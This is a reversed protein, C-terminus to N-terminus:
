GGGFRLGVDVFTRRARDEAGAYWRLANVVPGSLDGDVHYFPAADLLDRRYILDARVAGGNDYTLWCADVTPAVGGYPYGGYTPATDTVHMTWARLALVPAIQWTAAFGTSTVMGAGAGGVSQSADEFSLRLRANDSYTLTGGSLEMRQLDVPVPAGNSYLYQEVFTPLTFSGSEQLDVSWKGQPFLDAQLSPAILATKAPQSLGYIGGAYDFWFAGVGAVVKLDNATAVLGADARTQDLTAGLTPLSYWAAQQDYFGSSTRVAVDAFGAIPGTSHVGATLGSDSWGDVISGYDELEYNGRDAVASITLNLARPDDFTASGFSYSGAFAEDPSDWSRGQESGAAVAVSQDAGLQLTGNLDVRQRSEQDNSFTGFVLSSDDSGVQARVIADSGLTAVEWNSQSAIPDLEVTGGGAQNGYLFADAAGRVVASTEYDAPIFLYPSLGSTVDYVPAGNDILLSGAASLGRDSLEPGPTTSSEELLTFPRLGISSEVHAYPLNALDDPSPANEVLADYRRVIAVVPEGQTVVVRSTQCYRCAIVVAVIGADHLAFTGNADTATQAPSSGATIGTVTAGFIAAGHQDRVSGVVIPAAARAPLAVLMVPLLAAAAHITRNV